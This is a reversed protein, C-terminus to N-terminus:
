REMWRATVCPSVSWIAEPVYYKAWTGGRRISSDTIRLRMWHLTAWEKRVEALADLDRIASVEVDASM